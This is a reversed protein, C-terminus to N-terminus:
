SGPRAAQSSYLFPFLAYFAAAKRLKTLSVQDLATHVYQEEEPGFGLSPIGAAGASYTGDTSFRWVGVGPEAGFLAAGTAKGAALLPDSEPLLWGPYFSPGDLRLGTHTRVPQIPIRATAGLPEVVTRIGALVSEASEGPVLRRDVAVECWSPVSNPTHPGEILTVVQNGAGFIPDVPLHGNMAELAAIVPLMKLIASEGLHPQSAHAARGETRVRVECRGRQGRRLTLDTAEALLVVDPRLGDREVMSRLAFGEADEELTAGMIVVSLGELNGFVEFTERQVQALIAAGYVIAAVGGKCDSAGLGFMTDGEVVPELPPHPWESADAVENTDLHANYLIVRPGRGIRGLANGASDQWVEDCGIARLEELTREVAPKEQGTYSRIRILDALFRERPETMQEALIGIRDVLGSQLSHNM